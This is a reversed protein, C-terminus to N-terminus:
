KHPLVYGCVCVCVRAVVRVNEDVHCWALSSYSKPLFVLEVQMQGNVDYEPLSNHECEFCVDAVTAGM